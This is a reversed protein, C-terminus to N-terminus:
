TQPQSGNAAASEAPAPPGVSGEALVVRDRGERKARYLATDAARLLDEAKSGHQPFCSVGVSITVTGLKAGLHTVNLEKIATRIADAKIRADELRANPLVVLLEEGGMRSAVDGGRTKDLLLRAIERLVKDGAEHGFSDNFRKFHDVDIALMALASGQREARHLERSLTEETYRRNFLGTLPDRISQNRLKERLELNALAMGIQEGLVSARQRVPEALPGRGRLHLTGLMVGYALLPVCLLSLGPVDGQKVHKCVIGADATQLFHPQGRRVAWCDDPVFTQAVEGPLDTGWAIQAELHDRSAHFIYVAGSEHRFFRPALQGIVDYAEGLERCAQLLEGLTLHLNIESLRAEELERRETIDRSIGVLGVVNHDADRYPGKNSLFTRMVGKIPAREELTRTVGGRLIELDHSRIEAAAEPPMLDAVTKGLVDRPFVGLLAGFASNVLLYRGELDKVYIPDTTGEIISDLQQHKTRLARAARVANNRERMLLLGALGVLLLGTLTGLASISRQTTVDSEREQRREQLLRRENAILATLATHIASRLQLAELTTGPDPRNQRLLAMRERLQQLRRSVNPEFEDLVRQQASNDRTLRRITAARAATEKLAPEVDALLADERTTAYGRVGSEAIALSSGIRQLTEIVGHTHEVWTEAEHQRRAYQHALVGLAAQLLIAGVLGIAPALHLSRGAKVAAEDAAAPADNLPGPV